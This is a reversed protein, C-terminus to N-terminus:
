TACASPWASWTSAAAAFRCSSPMACVRPCCWAKMSCGTAGPACCPRTSTPTCWRGSAGVKRAFARALDGTGAPSTWCRTARRARQGGGRHLGELRPAAGLSMLDNMLDYKRRWRTSCAACADAGEASRRGDQLRFPDASVALPGRNLAFPRLVLGSRGAMPADRDVGPRPWANRTSGGCSTRSAAWSTCTTGPSSAPTTATRFAPQVRTTAWRSWSTSARGRAQRDAAGGPGPRPGAGRGVAFVRADVRLSHPVRSGDAFGVELVRSQRTCTLATPQPLTPNSDQWTTSRRAHHATLRAGPTESWCASSAARM